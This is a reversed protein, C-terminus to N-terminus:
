PNFKMIFGSRPNTKYGLERMAPECWRNAFFIHVMTHPCDRFFQYNIFGKCITLAEEDPLSHLEAPNADYTIERIEVRCPFSGSVADLEEATAQWLFPRASALVTVEEMEMLSLFVLDFPVEVFGGALFVAKTSKRHENLFKEREFSVEKGNEALATIKEFTKEYDVFSLHHNAAASLKAAAVLPDADVRSLSERITDLLSPLNEYIEKKQEAFLDSVSLRSSVETFVRHSLIAPPISYEVGALQELTRSVIKKRLWADASVGRMSHIVQKIICPICSLQSDM